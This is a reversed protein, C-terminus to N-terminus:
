SGTYTVNYVCVCQMNFESVDVQAIEGALDRKVSALDRKVSM